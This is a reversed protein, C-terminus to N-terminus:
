ESHAISVSSGSARSGGGNAQVSNGAHASNQRLARGEFQVGPRSCGAFAVGPTLRAALGCIAAM